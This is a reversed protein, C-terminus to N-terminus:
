SQVEYAPLGRIFSEGAADRYYVVMELGLAEAARVFVAADCDEELYATEGQAYSYRSIKDEIKLNKLIRRPVELWGHGPDAHYTIELM